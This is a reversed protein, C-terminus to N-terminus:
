LFNQFLYLIDCPFFYNKKLIESLYLRINNKTLISFDHKEINKSLSCNNFKFISYFDYEVYRHRCPCGHTWYVKMDKPKIIWSFMTFGHDIKDPHRCIDSSDKKSSNTGGQHDKMINMCTDITIKGYNDSSNLLELAREGRKQSSKYEFPFVSGTLNPDLWQHHNTHWLIGERTHTINTDNGFVAIFNDHMQEIMVIGGLNDCLVYVSNDWMHPWRNNRGSARESNDILTAVEVVNKCTRMAHRELWYKSIGDGEDVPRNESLHIGNGGMGLGKENLFPIEWLLPIGWFAYGFNDGIKVVWCRWTFYHYILITFIDPFSFEGDFNQTLYTEGKKTGPSTSLTTTCEGKLFCDTFHELITGLSRININLGDSLGRLEEYSFNMLESSDKKESLLELNTLSEEKAFINKLKIISFYIKLNKGVWKGYEYPSEFYKFIIKSDFPKINTLGINIKVTVSSLTPSHIAIILIAFLFILIKKM